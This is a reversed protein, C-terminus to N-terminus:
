IIKKWVAQFPLYNLSSKLLSIPGYVPESQDFVSNKILTYFMTFAHKITKRTHFRYWSVFSSAWATFQWPLQYSTMLVKLIYYLLPFVLRLTGLKKSVIVSLKGVGNSFVVVLFLFKKTIKWRKAFVLACWCVFVKGLRRVSLCVVFLRTPLKRM